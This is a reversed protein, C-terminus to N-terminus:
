RIYAYKEFVVLYEIEDASQNMYDGKPIHSIYRNGVHDVQEKIAEALANYGKVELTYQQPRRNIFHLLRERFDKGGVTDWFSSQYSM